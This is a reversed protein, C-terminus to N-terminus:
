KFIDFVIVVYGGTLTDLFERLFDLLLGMQFLLQSEVIFALTFFNKGLRQLYFSRHIRSVSSFYGM